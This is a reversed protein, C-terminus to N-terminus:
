SFAGGESGYGQGGRRPNVEHHARLVPSHNTNKKEEKRGVTETPYATSSLVVLRNNRAGSAREARYKARDGSMEADETVLMGSLYTLRSVGQQAALEAVRATRRHEVRDLEDPDSGGRLSVHVGAYDELGREIAGFNDVDGAFYEFGPGLLTRPQEVDRTLLRVKFGDSLLQWAVREGLMGPGGVVLITQTNM